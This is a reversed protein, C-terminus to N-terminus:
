RAARSAWGEFIQLIANLKRPDGEGRFQNHEVRCVIWDRDSRLASFENMRQGELPTDQLDITVMWGATSLSEITIGNGHEWVGNCRAEYWVELFRLRDSM